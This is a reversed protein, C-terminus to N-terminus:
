ASAACPTTCCTTRAETFRGHPWSTRAPAPLPQSPSTCRRRGAPRQSGGVGRELAAIREELVSVTPNSLRSYVHGSREMNFLAAAQDSDSFVFSTSLYIPTARAGTAPDPSAGAHVALTDM